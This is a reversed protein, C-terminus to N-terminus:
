AFWCSLFFSGWLLLLLLRFSVVIWHVIWYKDSSSHLISGFIHCSAFYFTLCCMVLLYKIFFGSFLRVFARALSLAHFLSFLSFRSVVIDVNLVFHASQKQNNLHLNMFICCEVTRIWRACLVSDTWFIFRFVLSFFRLFFGVRCVLHFLIIFFVHLPSIFWNAAQHHAMYHANKAIRM